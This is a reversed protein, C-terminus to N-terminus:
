KKSTNEAPLGADATGGVMTEYFTASANVTVTPEYYVVGERVYRTQTVTCRVDGLLCRIEADALETLIAEMEYFDSVIFSLSFPRRIQDGDRTVDSFRVTFEKDRFIENLLKLEEKANNYSRMVSVTGSKEIDEIETEMRTMVAVQAQVTVLEMELNNKEAAANALDERIPRDIYQYYGLGALILILIVILVTEKASFRRNIKRKKM